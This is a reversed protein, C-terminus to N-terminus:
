APTRPEPGISNRWRDAPDFNLGPEGENRSRNSPLTTARQLDAPSDACVEPTCFPCGVRPTFRVPFVCGPGWVRFEAAEQEARALDPEAVLDRGRVHVAGHGRQRVHEGLPLPLDRRPLAPPRPPARCVTLLVSYTVAQNSVAGVSIGLDLEDQHYALAVAGTYDM